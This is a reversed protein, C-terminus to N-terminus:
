ESAKPPLRDAKSVGAVEQGAVAKVSDFASYFLDRLEENSVDEDRHKHYMYKCAVRGIAYTTCFSMVAASAAGVTQGWGPLFKVVQRTGFKMSYRVGIGAGLAGLLEALASKNWKTGYSEALDTLMKWQIGPVAVLGIGPVIDSVGSVGSYWLLKTQLQQFKRVEEDSSQRKRLAVAVIPLMDSLAGVLGEVGDTGGEPLKFDVAVSAIPSGLIEEVQGCNYRALREREKLDQVAHVATHVLLYNNIQQSFKIQRIARLVDGQETDGMKMVIILAHGQKTCIKIDETADYGSESLGRTDVFQLVPKSDPFAFQRATRTCPRFGKGIEAQSNGTISQVLTSKGAGTKGLLWLTPLHSDHYLSVQNLLNENEGSSRYVQRVKGFLSMNLSGNEVRCKPLWGEGALVSSWNASFRKSILQSVSKKSLDNM